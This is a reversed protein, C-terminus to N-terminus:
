YKNRKNGKYGINFGAELIDRMDAGFRSVFQDNFYDEAMHATYAQLGEMGYKQLVRMATLPDHGYRRHGQSYLGQFPTMGMAKSLMMSERSPSDAMHNIERIVKGPINPFLGHTM